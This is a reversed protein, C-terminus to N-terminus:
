LKPVKKCTKCLQVRDIRFLSIGDGCLICEDKLKELWGMIPGGWGESFCYEKLAPRLSTDVSKFVVAALKDGANRAKDREHLLRNNLWQKIFFIM